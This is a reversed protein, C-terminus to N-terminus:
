GKKLLELELSAAYAIEPIPSKTLAQLLAEILEGIHKHAAATQENYVPTTANKVTKMKTEKWFRVAGPLPLGQRGVTIFRWAIGVRCSRENPLARRTM